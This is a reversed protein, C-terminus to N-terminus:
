GARGGPYEDDTVHAGWTATGQTITIHSMLHDHAAGHWHEDGDPTYHIDGVRLEVIDEGRTQVHGRGETVYLTQGGDHAHWATRAGPLFHVHGVNLQSRENPQVIGDIFVDGTFFDAPGKITPKPPQVDVANEKPM